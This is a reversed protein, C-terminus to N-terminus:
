NSIIERKLGSGSLHIKQGCSNLHFRGSEPLKIAEVFAICYFLHLIVLVSFYENLVSRKCM